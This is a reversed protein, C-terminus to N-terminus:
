LGAFATLYGLYNHVNQCHDMVSFLGVSTNIIGLVVKSDLLNLSSLQSYELIRFITCQEKCQASSNLGKFILDIVPCKFLAQIDSHLVQDRLFILKLRHYRPFLFLQRLEAPSLIRTKDLAKMWEKTFATEPTVREGENCHMPWICQGRETLVVVKKPHKLHRDSYTKPLFIGGPGRSIEKM